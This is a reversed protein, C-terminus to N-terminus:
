IKKRNAGAFCLLGFGFLLLTTPEPVPNGEGSTIVRLYAPNNGEASGFTFGSYGTYVFSYDISTPLITMTQWSSTIDFYQWGTGDSALVSGGGSFSGINERGDTWVSLVNYNLTVSTIDAITETFPALSFRLTSNASNGNGPEYSHSVVNPNAGVETSYYTGFYGWSKYNVWDGDPTVFIDYTAASVLSVFVSLVMLATTLGVLFKKNM